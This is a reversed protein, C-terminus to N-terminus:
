TSYLTSYCRAGDADVASPTEPAKCHSFKGIIFNGTYIKVQAVSTIMDIICNVAHKESQLFLMRSWWQCLSHEGRESNYVYFVQERGNRGLIEAATRRQRTGQCFLTLMKLFNNCRLTFLRNYVSGTHM